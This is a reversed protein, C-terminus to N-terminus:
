WDMQRCIRTSWILFRPSVKWLPLLRWVNTDCSCQFTGKWIAKHLMYICTSEWCCCNSICYSINSGLDFQRLPKEIHDKHLYSSIIMKVPIKTLMLWSILKPIHAAKQAFFVSYQTSLSVRQLHRLIFPKGFINEIRWAIHLEVPKVPFVDGGFLSFCTGQAYHPQKQFCVPRHWQTIPAPPKSVKLLMQVEAPMEQSMPKPTSSPAALSSMAVIGFGHRLGKGTDERETPNPFYYFIFRYKFSNLM